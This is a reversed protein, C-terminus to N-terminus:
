SSRHDIWRRAWERAAREALGPSAHSRIVEVHPKADTLPGCITAEGHWRGTNFANVEISHGRYEYTRATATTM